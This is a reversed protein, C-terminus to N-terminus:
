SEGVKPFGGRGESKGGCAVCPAGLVLDCRRGGEIRPIRGGEADAWKPYM